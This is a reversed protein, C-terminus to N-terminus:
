SDLYALGRPTREVSILESSEFDVVFRARVLGAGHMLRVVDILQTHSWEDALDPFQTDLAAGLAYGDMSTNEVVTLIAKMLRTRDVETM